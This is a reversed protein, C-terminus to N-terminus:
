IKNELQNLIEVLKLAKQRSEQDISANDIIDINMVSRASELISKLKTENKIERSKQDGSVMVDLYTQDFVRDANFSEERRYISGLLNIIELTNLYESQIGCGKFAEIVISVRRELEENARFEIESESLSAIESTPEWPVVIYYDAVRRLDGTEFNQINIVSLKNFYEDAYGKLGSHSKTSEEITESLKELMENNVMKRTHLFMNIPFPISNFARNLKVAFSDKGSESRIIYNYPQIKVYAVYKHNGLNIRNISIDKFPILDQTNKIKDIESKDYKSYTFTKVKKNFKNYFFLVGGIVLLTVFIGIIISM